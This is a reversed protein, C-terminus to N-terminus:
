QNQYVIQGGIFKLSRLQKLPRLNECNKEDLISDLTLHQLTTLLGIAEVTSNLIDNSHAFKLMKFSKLNTAHRSLWRIDQSCLHFNILSMLSAGAFQILSVWTNNDTMGDLRLHQLRCCFCSSRTWRSFDAKDIRLSHLPSELLLSQLSSPFTELFMDVRRNSNNETVEESGVPRVVTTIHTTSSTVPLVFHSWLTPPSTAVILHTMQPFVREILRGISDDLSNTCTVTDDYMLELTRVSSWPKETASEVDCGDHLSPLMFISTIFPLSLSTVRDFHALRKALRTQINPWYVPSSLCAQSLGLYKKPQSLWALDINNAWGVGVSSLGYWRRCVHEITALRDHTAIWSIIMDFVVDPVDVLRM